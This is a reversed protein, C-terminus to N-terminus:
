EGAGPCSQAAECQVLGAIVRDTMHLAFVTLIIVSAFAALYKCDRWTM